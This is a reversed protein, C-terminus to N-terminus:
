TFLANDLIKIVYIVLFYAFCSFKGRSYNRANDHLISIDHIECDNNKDQEGKGRSSALIRLKNKERERERERRM